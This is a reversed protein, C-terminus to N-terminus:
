KQQVTRGSLDGVSRRGQVLRNKSSAIAAKEKALFEQFNKPREGLEPSPHEEGMEELVKKRAEALKAAVKKARKQEEMTPAKYMVRSWKKQTLVEEDMIKVIRPDTTMAKNDHFDIALKNRKITKGDIVMVATPRLIHTHNKYKSFYIVPEKLPTFDEALIQM